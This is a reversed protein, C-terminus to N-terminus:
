HTDNHDGKQQAEGETYLKKSKTILRKYLEFNCHM